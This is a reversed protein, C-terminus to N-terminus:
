DWIYREDYSIGHRELLLRFEEQFSRLRHHEEQNAIYEKVQAANSQSVSFAGYGNQWHFDALQPGEEKIRASSSTKLEEVLKAVSLTRHLNCLIHAHDEVVGVILPSCKLNQLTGILYGTMASRVEPTRLWPRRHKTSFVIHVLVNSLSQPM